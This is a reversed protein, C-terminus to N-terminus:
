QMIVVSPKTNGPTGTAKLEVIGANFQVTSGSNSTAAYSGVAKNGQQETLYNTFGLDGITWGTGQGSMTGGDDYVAGFLDSGAFTSTMAGSSAVGNGTAAAHAGIPSANNRGSYEIGAMAVFQVTAPFNATITVGAGGTTIPATWIQMGANPTVTNPNNKFTGPVKTWTNGLSDTVTIADAIANYWWICIVGLDGATLTLGTLTKSTVNGNTRDFPYTRVFAM